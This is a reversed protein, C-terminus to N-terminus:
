LDLEVREGQEPCQANVGLFDRLRQALFTRAKQEGMALYVAKLSDATSEVFQVLHEHDKHSSYGEIKTVDARVPVTQGFIEVEKAGEELQRGLTGPAQYGVLLLTNNPDPLYDLEHHLVRGGTSMGSGAIVIKPPPVDGIAKSEEVRETMELTPFSFLEGEAAEDKLHDNYHKTVDEFIRTVKIALPSDLYVPVPPIRDEDIMHQLQHLLIQTRELSFAPIVLTGGREVTKSVCTRFAQDREQPSEHNRDGYVSEMVMYDANEVPDTDRLLPAPSNGLDGTFVVTHQTDDQGAISFTYIASGLIHGADTATVSVRDNLRKKTYYPIEHWLALAQEVDEREYLPQQGEEEKEHEMIGLADELMVETIRRTVPTSYIPGRFGERALKPVRGIHDLHAHTIFLYDISSPDHAFPERNREHAEESGQEIGCDVAIRTDDVDFLFHSGTVADAGGAFTISASIDTSM